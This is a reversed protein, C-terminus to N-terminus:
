PRRKAMVLRNTHEDSVEFRVQDMLSRMFHVGLGGIKLNQVVEDPTLTDPEDQPFHPVPISKADFSRGNDEIIIVFWEANIEYSVWIADIGEAGYGHEIVNTCAEDCALEIRFVVDEAFGAQSAGKAIFTCAQEVASYKGPVTLSAKM